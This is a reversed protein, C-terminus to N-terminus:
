KKTPIVRNAIITFLPIFLLPVLCGYTIGPVWSMGMSVADIIAGLDDSLTNGLGAGFAGGVEVNWGKYAAYRAGFIACVVVIIDDTYAFRAGLIEVTFIHITLAIGIAALIIANTLKFM